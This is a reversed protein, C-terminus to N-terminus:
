HHALLLVLAEGCLAMAIFAATPLRAASRTLLGIVSVSFLAHGAAAAGDSWVMLFIPSTFLGVAAFFILLLRAWSQGVLLAGVLGGFVVVQLLPAEGNRAQAAARSQLLLDLVFLAGTAFIAVKSQRFPAYPSWPGGAPPAAKRGPQADVTGRFPRDKPQSEPM